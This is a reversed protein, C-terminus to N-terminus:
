ATEDPTLTEPEAPELELDRGLAELSKRIEETMLRHIKFQDSEAALQPALRDPINSLADRVIRATKFAERKVIEADVLKGARKHFELKALKANYNERITRAEAFSVGPEDLAQSAQAEQKAVIAPVWEEDAVTPDIQAKGKDNFTVSRALKGARIAKIVAVHSVGRHDAYAKVGLRVDATEKPSQKPKRGM